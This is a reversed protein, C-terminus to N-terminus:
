KRQAKKDSDRFENSAGENAFATTMYVGPANYNESIYTGTDVDDLNETEEKPCKVLCLEVIVMALAIGGIIFVSNILEQTMAAEPQVWKQVAFIAASVLTLLISYLLYKKRGPAAAGELDFEKPGTAYTIMGGILLVALAFMAPIVLSWAMVLLEQWFVGEAAKAANAGRVSTFVNYLQTVVDTKVLVFVLAAAAVLQFVNRVFPSFNGFERKEEVLVGDHTSFLSVNGSPIGCAFHFFLGVALAAWAFLELKVDFLLFLVTHLVIISSFSGSFIKGMDDMAYMNRNVGYLRSAKRKFLWGLKIFLRIVNIVLVLMLVGYVIFAIMWKKSVNGAKLADLDALFGTVGLSVEKGDISVTVLALATLATLVLTALLYLLGIRKAKGKAKSIRQKVQAYRQSMANTRTNYVM